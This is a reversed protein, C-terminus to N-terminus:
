STSARRGFPSVRASESAGQYSRPGKDSDSDSDSENEPKEHGADRQKSKPMAHSDRKRGDRRRDYARLRITVNGSRESLVTQVHEDETILAFLTRGVCDYERM